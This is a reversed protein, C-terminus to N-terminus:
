DAVRQIAHKWGECGCEQQEIPNASPRAIWRGSVLGFSM